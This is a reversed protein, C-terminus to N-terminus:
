RQNPLWVPAAHSQAGTSIERPPGGDVSVLVIRAPGPNRDVMAVWQGDPSWSAYDGHRHWGGSGDARAMVVRGGRGAVLIREGDPSWALDAVRHGGIATNPLRSATGDALDVVEVGAGERHRRALIWAIRDGDPSWVPGYGVSDQGGVRRPPSGDPSVVYLGGREYANVFALTRGDPSWAPDAVFGIPAAIEHGEEGRADAFMLGSSGHVGRLLTTSGDPSWLPYGPLEVPAAGDASLLYPQFDCGFRDCRTGVRVALALGDPRWSVPYLEGADLSRGLTAQHAGDAGLIEISAPTTRRVVAM